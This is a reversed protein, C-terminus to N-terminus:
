GFVVSTDMGARGALPDAAYLGSTGDHTGDLYKMDDAVVSRKVSGTALVEHMVSAVQGSHALGIVHGLEHTVITQLDYQSSTIDAPDSGEFWSWGSLLTVYGDHDMCGLVGDAAAGCPSTAAVGILADADLKEAEPVSVVQVNYPQFVRNLEAIADEVRARQGATLTVHDVYVDITGALLDGEALAIVGTEDSNGDTHNVLSSTAQGSFKITKAVIGAKIAAKGSAHFQANPAYITGGIGTLAAGAFKMRKKNTEPQAVVVGRYLGDQPPTLTVNAGDEIEMEGSKIYLFVGNGILTADDEIELEDTFVYNGATLTITCGDEAEVEDYIGPQLTHSGSECEFSGRDTLGTPEVIYQFPDAFPNTFATPGPAVVANGKVKLAGRVLLEDSKLTANGNITVARKAHDSNVIVAGPQDIVAKGSISLAGKADTSLAMLSRRSTVDFSVSSAAGDDDTVTVTVTFTGNM